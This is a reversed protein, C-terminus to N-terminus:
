VAMITDTQFDPLIISLQPHFEIGEDSILTQYLEIAKNNTDILSQINRYSIRKDGPFIVNSGLDSKEVYIPKSRDSFSSNFTGIIRSRISDTLNLINQNLSESFQTHRRSKNCSDLSKLCSLCYDYFHKNYADTASWAWAEINERERDPNANWPVYQPYCVIPISSLIITVIVNKFNRMSNFSLPNTSAFNRIIRSVKAILRSCFYEWTTSASSAATASAAASAPPWYRSIAGAETSITASRYAIKCTSFPATPNGYM